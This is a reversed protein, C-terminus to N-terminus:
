AASAKSSSQNSRWLSYYTVGNSLSKSHSELCPFKSVQILQSRVVTTPVENAGSEWEGFSAEEFAMRQLRLTSDLQWRVQQYLGWKYRRQFYSVVTELNLSLLIILGGLGFILSIWLISFSTYSGDRIVQNNCIWESQPDTTSFGATYQAYHGPPGTAFETVSEPQLVPATRHM